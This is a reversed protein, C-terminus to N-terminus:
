FKKMEAFIRNALDGNVSVNPLRLHNDCVNIAKLAEKIGAPNNEEFLLNTLDMCKFHLDKALNYDGSVAARVMGSFAAPVAQGVVSIVGDCGFSMMPLTLNDDGSIVLFGEPRHKAIEMCQELNGSAEKIAIINKFDNALRLTTNAEMNKSTRGPVNYLVIPLPAIEAIAKYHQYIGEQSPKNYSPSASLIADIKSLDFNQIDAIVQATNNGGFGALLPVREAIIKATFDIITQKEEKNLVVSEGTTGLTVLYEVGGNICHNILKELSSFDITKDQKFPTVLAIGTGILKKTM